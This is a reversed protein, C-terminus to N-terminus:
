AVELICTIPLVHFMLSLFHFLCSRYPCVSNYYVFVSLAWKLQVQSMIRRVSNCLFYSLWTSKNFRETCQGLYQVLQDNNTVAMNAKAQHESQKYLWYTISSLIHFSRGYASRSEVPRVARWIGPSQDHPLHIRCHTWFM